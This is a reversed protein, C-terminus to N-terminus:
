FRRKTSSGAGRRGKALWGIAFGFLTAIILWIVIQTGVYVM